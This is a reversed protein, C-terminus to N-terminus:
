PKQRAPGTSDRVVLEPMITFERGADHSKGEPTLSRFITHGIQDRPIHVTTLAPFCFEALEINDFGTVSIDRPVQIGRERLELLAGVAMIDNVCVIATPPVGTSILEAAARKGGHLSDSDLAQRVGTHTNPQACELVTNCRELLPGLAGHHGIFGIDSHGLLKLYDVVREMGRRYNVRIKTVHGGASGVDYLVLPTERETLEEVIGDEMESVILALGSVRRGIMMRVSVALQEPRYMTNSVIVEYGHAHCDEEVARYVDLFFPNDLNSVVVGITKNVARALNRAHLNPHYKLDAVAKMVRARTSSKVIDLGNLVRSVTAPSVRARKAVAQLSMDPKNDAM